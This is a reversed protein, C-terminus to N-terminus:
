NAGDRHRHDSPLPSVSFVLYPRRSLGGSISAPYGADLRLIGRARRAPVLQLTTGLVLTGLRERGDGAAEWRLSGASFLGADLGWARNLAAVPMTRELSAVAIRRALRLERPFLTRTVDPTALGRVDPDPNVLLEGGLTATWRGTGARRVATLLGRANAADIRENGLYGSTWADASLLTSRGPLWVRGAWGDVHVVARRSAVDVGPGVLIESELGHPVDVLVGPRLLWTVTDWRATRRAIGFDLAAYSRRVNAPGVLTDGFGSALRTHEVEAGALLLTVGAESARVRVGGLFAANERLFSRGRDPTALVSRRLRLEATRRDFVSREATGLRAAVDRGDRFTAVGLTGSLNSGAIFPAALTVGVGMRQNRMELRAGVENGTGMLNREQVGVGAGGGRVSVRPQTSWTDRTAVVLDVGGAGACRRASIRVDDLYRLQRLRRLSEAVALSDVTDGAAFLLRRRVTSERTRVHLRGLVRAAGPLDAPAQTQVAVSFIRAGSLAGLGTRSETETCEQAAARTCALVACALALPILLPTAKM